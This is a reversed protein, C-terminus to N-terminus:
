NPRDNALDQFLEALSIPKHLVAQAGLQRV